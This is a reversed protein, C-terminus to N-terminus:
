WPASGIGARTSSSRDLRRHRLSSSSHRTAQRARTLCATGYGALASRCRKCRDVLALWRTGLPRPSLSSWSRRHTDHKLERIRVNVTVETTTCRCHPTHACVQHIHWRRVSSGKRRLLPSGAAAPGTYPLVFSLCCRSSGAALSWPRMHPPVAGADSNRDGNERTPVPDDPRLAPSAAYREVAPFVDHCHKSMWMQNAAGNVRRVTRECNYSAHDVHRFPHALYEPPHPGISHVLRRPM